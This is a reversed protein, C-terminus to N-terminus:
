DGSYGAGSKRDGKKGKSMKRRYLNPVTSYARGGQADYNPTKIKPKIPKNPNTVKPQRPTKM